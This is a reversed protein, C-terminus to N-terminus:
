ALTDNCAELAATWRAIEGSASQMFGRAQEVEAPTRALRLLRRSREFYGRAAAINRGIFARRAAADPTTVNDQM